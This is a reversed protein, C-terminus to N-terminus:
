KLGSGCFEKRFAGMDLAKKKTVGDACGRKCLGVSLAASFGTLGEEGLLKPGLAQVLYDCGQADMAKGGDYCVQYIQYVDACTAQGDAALAPAALAVLIILIM